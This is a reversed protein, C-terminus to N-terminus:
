AMAIEEAGFRFASGGAGGNQGVAEDLLPWQHHHLRRELLGCQSRSSCASAISASRASRGASTTASSRHERISPTKVRSARRRSQDRVLVMRGGHLSLALTTAFFFTIALMHAPNYHFHLYQYGTNSVWDLHQCSVTPSHRLGWAGLLVPRIVELSFYAFIAVSLLRVARSLRHRAQPLDRGRSAGVLLVCWPACITIIQWLGGEQLPALALGYKSRRPPAISIQWVNWTPGSALRWLRDAGHRCLLLLDDHNRLIRRLVARGLLRVPRRRHAHRGACSIEARFSLMAM